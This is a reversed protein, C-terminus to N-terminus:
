PPSCNLREVQSAKPPPLYAEVALLAVLAWCISIALFVRFDCPGPAHGTQELRAPRVRALPAATPVPEVRETATRVVVLFAAAGFVLVTLPALYTVTFDPSVSDRIALRLPFDQCDTHDSFRAVTFFGFM